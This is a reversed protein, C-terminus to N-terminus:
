ELGLAQENRAPVLITHENRYTVMGPGAGRIKRVNRRQTIDVEVNGSERSQSYWAAIGAARELVDAAPDDSPVRTRLIVHSGPVGRAHLWWDEAHAIEFTVQENERGSRGIYYLNGDDDSLPSVKRSAQKKGAHHGKNQKGSHRGGTQEDFEQRVAEIAAFGEAESAMWRLQELYHLEATTSEIREPLQEGAKQSKRYDEFYEAAM